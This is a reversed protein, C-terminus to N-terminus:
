LRLTKRFAPDGRVLASHRLDDLNERLIVSAGVVDRRELAGLAQVIAMALLGVFYPDSREDLARNMLGARNRKRRDPRAMAKRGARDSVRARQAHIRDASIGESRLEHILATVTPPVSRFTPNGIKRGSKSGNRRVVALAAKTRASILDAEFAAFSALISALMRGEPTDLSFTEQESFLITGSAKQVSEVIRHFDLSSRALRDVRTAVIGGVDRRSCAEIAAALGPRKRTSRGSAGNDEFVKLLQYGRRECYDEIARRQVSLGHGEEAKSLRIYGVVRM